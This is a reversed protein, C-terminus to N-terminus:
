SWCTNIKGPSTNEEETENLTITWSDMRWNLMEEEVERWCWVAVYWIFYCGSISWDTIWSSMLLRWSLQDADHPRHSIPQIRNSLDQDSSCPIIHCGRKWSLRKYQNFRKNRLFYRFSLTKVKATLLFNINLYFCSMLFIVKDKAHMQGSAWQKMIQGGLWSLSRLKDLGFCFWSWILGAVAHCAESSVHFVCDLSGRGLPILFIEKEM